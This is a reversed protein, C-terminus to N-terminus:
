TLKNTPKFINSYINQVFFISKPSFLKMDRCYLGLLQLTVNLRTRTVVKATSFCYTNCLRSNTHLGFSIFFLIALILIVCESHTDTANCIWYAIPMPRIINDDTAQGARSYKKWVIEFVTGNEFFLINNFMFHSNQNERCRRDSVIRMRLLIWLSIVVFTCLEELM